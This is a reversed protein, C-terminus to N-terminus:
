GKKMLIVYTNFSTNVLLDSNANEELWNNFQDFEDPTCLPLKPIDRVDQIAELTSSRTQNNRIIRLEEKLYGFERLVVHKLATFRLTGLRFIKSM